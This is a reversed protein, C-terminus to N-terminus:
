GGGAGAMRLRRREEPHLGGAIHSVAPDPETLAWARCEDLVPCVACIAKLSRVSPWLPTSKQDVVMDIRRRACEAREAWNGPGAPTLHHAM